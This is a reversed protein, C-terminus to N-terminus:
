EARAEPSKNAFLVRKVGNMRAQAALMMLEGAGVARDALVLLTTQGSQRVREGIHEGLSITSAGDDLVYRADDFFVFTGNPMVLALAVLDTKEGETLGSEPLDFLIGESSTLTGGVAHLLVLLLLLTVWPVAAVFSAFSFAMGSRGSRRARRWGWGTTV